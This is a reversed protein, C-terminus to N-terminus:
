RRVCTVVEDDSPSPETDLSSPPPCMTEDAYANPVVAVLGRRSAKDESDFAAACTCFDGCLTLWLSRVHLSGDLAQTPLVANM